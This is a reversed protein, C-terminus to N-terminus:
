AASLCYERTISATREAVISQLTRVFAKANEDINYIALRNRVEEVSSVELPKSM